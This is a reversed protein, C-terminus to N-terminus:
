KKNWSSIKYIYFYVRYITKWETSFILQCIHVIKVKVFFFETNQYAFFNDERNIKIASMQWLNKYKDPTFYKENKFCNWWFHKIFFIKRHM